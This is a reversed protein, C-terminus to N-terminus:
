DGFACELIPLSETELGLWRLTKQALTDKTREMKARGVTGRGIFDVTITAYSGKWKKESSHHCLTVNKGDPSRAWVWKNRFELDEACSPAGLIAEVEQESMGARVRGYNEITVADNNSLFAILTIGALLGLIGILTLRRRKM